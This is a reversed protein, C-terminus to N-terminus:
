LYRLETDPITCLETEESFEDDIIRSGHLIQFKRLFHM